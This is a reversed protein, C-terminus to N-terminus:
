LPIGSVIRGENMQVAFQTDNANQTKQENRSFIMPGHEDTKKKTPRMVTRERSM